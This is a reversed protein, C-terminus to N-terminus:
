VSVCLNYERHLLNYVKTSSTICVTSSTICVTSSTIWVRTIKTDAWTGKTKVKHSQVKPSRVQTQCFNHNTLKSFSYILQQEIFEDKRDSFNLIYLNVVYDHLQINRPNFILHCLGPAGPGLSPQCNNSWIRSQRWCRGGEPGHQRHPGQGTAPSRSHCM